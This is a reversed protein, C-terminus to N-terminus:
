SAPSPAALVPHQVMGHGDTAPRRALRCNLNQTLTPRPRPIFEGDDRPVWARVPLAPFNYGPLFGESALYRYSYFDSEERNTSIQRLLNLQRLAEEERRRAEAQADRDRARRLAAQAEIM